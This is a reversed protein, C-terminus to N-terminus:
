KGTMKKIVKWVYRIIVGICFLSFWYFIADLLSMFFASVALGFFGEFPLNLWYIDWRPDFWDGKILSPGGYGFDSIVFFFAMFFICSSAIVGKRRIEPTVIKKTIFTKWPPQHLCLLLIYIPFFFWQVAITIRAVGEYSTRGAVADVAPVVSSIVNVINSIISYHVLQRGLQSATVCSLMFAIVLIIGFIKNSSEEVKKNM